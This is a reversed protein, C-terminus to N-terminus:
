SQRYYEFFRFDLMDVILCLWLPNMLLPVLALYFLLDSRQLECVTACVGTQHVCEFLTIFQDLVLFMGHLCYPSSNAEKSDNHHGDRNKETDNVAEIVLILVCVKTKVYQRLGNQSIRDNMYPPSNLSGVKDKWIVVQDKPM